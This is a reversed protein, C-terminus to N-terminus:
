NYKTKNLILLSEKAERPLVINLVVYLLIYFRIAEQLYSHSLDSVTIPIGMLDILMM